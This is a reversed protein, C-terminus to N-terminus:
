PKKFECKKLSEDEQLIKEIEEFNCNQAEIELGFKIYQPLNMKQDKPNFKM